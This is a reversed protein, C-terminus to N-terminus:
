GSEWLSQFASWNLEGNAYRVADGVSVVARYLTDRQDDAKCSDISVGVAEVDAQLSGAKQAAIEMGQAILRPLDPNPQGCLEIFLTDGLDSKALVARSDSGLNATRLENTTAAQIKAAEDSSTELADLRDLDATDDGARLSLAAAIVAAGLIVAVLLIFIRSLRGMRGRRRGVHEEAAALEEDSLPEDLESLAFKIEEVEEPPTRYAEEREPPLSAEEESRFIDERLNQFPDERDSESYDISEFVEQPEGFPNEEDFTSLTFAQEGFLDDETTGATRLEPFRALEDPEPPYEQNLRELMERAKPANKYNPDLRLVQVLAERVEYPETEAYALLWWAHVNQPEVAVIPRIIDLAEDTKDQKILKFARELLKRSDSM